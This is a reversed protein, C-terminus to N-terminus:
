VVPVTRLSNRTVCYACGGPVLDTMVANYFQGPDLFSGADTAPAACMDARTYSVPPASPAAWALGDPTPGWQVGQAADAAGIVWMVRMESVNGTLALHVHLVENASAFSVNNSSALPAGSSHYEFVLAAARMNAISFVTNGRGTDWGPADTVNQWGIRNGDVLCVIIDYRTRACVHIGNHM